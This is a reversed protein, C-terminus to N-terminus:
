TCDNIVKIHVDIDYFINGSSYNPEKKNRGDKGQLSDVESAVAIMAREQTNTYTCLPSQSTSADQSKKCYKQDENSRIQQDCSTKAESTTAIQSTHCSNPNKKRELKFVKPNKVKPYTWSSNSNSNDSM